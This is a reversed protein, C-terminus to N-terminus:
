QVTWSALHQDADTYQIRGTADALDFSIWGTYSEGATVPTPMLAPTGCGGLAGSNGAATRGRRDVHVFDLRNIHLTGATVRVDVRAALYLGHTPAPGATTCATIRPGTVETVTVTADLGDPNTLRIPTGPPMGTLDPAPHPQPTRWSPQDQQDGCGAASGAVAVTAAGTLLLAAMGGAALLTRRNTPATDQSRHRGATSTM